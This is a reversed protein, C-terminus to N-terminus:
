CAEEKNKMTRKKKKFLQVFMLIFAPLAFQLAAGYRPWYAIPSSVLLTAVVGIFPLLFVIYDLKGVVMLIVFLLIVLWFIWSVPVFWSDYVFISHLISEEYYDVKQLGHKVVLDNDDSLLVGDGINSTRSNVNEVNISWYGYTSFIWSEIYLTPNKVLMSLWHKFFDHELSEANFNDDWKLLDVCNPRYTTKYLDLPLLSDMYERDSDSMNGEYAVVRAMQQLFIGLSEVKKKPIGLQEYVPGTLVVCIVVALIMPVLLTIKKYQRCALVLVTMAASVFLLVYLGNNRVFVLVLSLLLLLLSLHRRAGAKAVFLEYLVVALLVLTVSFVPDKWMVVSYSAIYPCLSFLAVIAMLFKESVRFRKRIWEVFFAFGISMYLM